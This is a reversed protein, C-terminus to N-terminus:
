CHYSWGGNEHDSNNIASHTDRNYDNSGVCVCLCGRGGRLAKMQKEELEKKSLHSLTIKSIKKM